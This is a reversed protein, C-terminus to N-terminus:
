GVHARAQIITRLNDVFGQQEIDRFRIRRVIYEIVFVAGVFIYGIFNAWLSWQERSGFALLAADIALIAILILTWSWTVARTYAPLEDPLTGGHAATAIQTVLPTRGPLLSGAFKLLALAPFIMPPLFLAYTQTDIWMLGGIAAAFAAFALWEGRRGRRLEAYFCAGFLVMLALWELRSQRRVLAFHSLLPYCLALLWRM